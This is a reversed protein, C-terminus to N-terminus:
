ALPALTQADSVSVYEVRFGPIRGLRCAIKKELVRPPVRSPNQAISKKAESLIRYISAANKREDASLNANRSSMALGDHERVTPCSIIKVPFAMDAALREIIKLQQYDKEGFYARSPRVINFLKAVVAAVGAFHGPRSAGCLRESLGELAVSTAFGDPYMAKASPHFIASVGAARCMKVDRAFARPYKKFDERPGFQAPNVFISVVAVDNERRARRVLSLHGAHLAGMTPVFGVTKGRGDLSMFYKQAAAPSKITKM